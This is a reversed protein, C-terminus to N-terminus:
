EENSDVASLDADGRNKDKVKISKSRSSSIRRYIACFARGVTLCYLAIGAFVALIIYARAQGENVIFIFLVTAVSCIFAYLMDEAFVIPTCTRVIRRLLRFVEYVLGFAFGLALGMSFVILQSAASLHLVEGTDM